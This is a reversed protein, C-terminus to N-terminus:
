VRCVYSSSLTVYRVWRYPNYSKHTESIRLYKVQLNSVNYMPIEFTMAVPGIERKHSANAPQDLTLKVRMALESGGVLKKITWQVRKSGPIYEASSGPINVSMEFAVSATCRPVPINVVVNSGHNGEPIESRIMCLVELKYPGSEEIAPFIKFPSQFDGTIRYNLVTFEGDPPVFHLTRQSEFEDLRVCEHFNCDDLVVSGYQSTGKGIVLDENLALRLEPNGSLFSKMQIAGDISSNVVFGNANFLVTLKEVIDVYIENKSKSSRNALAVPLNAASSPKSKGTGISQMINLAATQPKIIVADNHVFNKLSETQTSQPYGFDLMEDLLEYILTFNRRIAEETLIGCYDKIVKAIRNLLELTTAPSVNLRTTCAMLLSNRRIYIYNFGDLHFIPPADGREWFKVKRFFDEHMTPHEDGRFDKSIICDGRPSLIFFQSITM